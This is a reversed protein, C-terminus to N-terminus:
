IHDNSLVDDLSDTIQVDPAISRATIQGNETADVVVSLSGLAHFNRCLNKGWYGCGILAINSEQNNTM